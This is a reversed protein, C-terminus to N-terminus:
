SNYAIVHSITLLKQVHMPSLTPSFSPELHANCFLRAHPPHLLSLVHSYLAQPSSHHLSTKALSRALTRYSATVARASTHVQCCYHLAMCFSPSTTQAHAAYRSSCLARLLRIPQLQDVIHPGLM